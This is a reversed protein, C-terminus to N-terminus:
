SRKRSPTALANEYSAQELPCQATASGGVTFHRICLWAQIRLPGNTGVPVFANDPVDAHQRRSVIGAFPDERSSLNEVIRTSNNEVSMIIRRDIPDRKGPRAGTYRLAWAKAAKPEGEVMVPSKRALAFNGDNRLVSGPASNGALYIQSGPSQAMDNPIQVAALRSSTDAGAIIQNGIISAKLPGDRNDSYFHIAAHGPNVILNGAVLVSIGRALAPNRYMNSVFLNNLIAVGRAGENVLLGM